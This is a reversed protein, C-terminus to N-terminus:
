RQREVVINKDNHTRVSYGSRLLAELTEAVETQPTLSNAEFEIIRPYADPATKCHALLGRLIACDKGECDLQVVDVTGVHYQKCLEGWSLVPVKREVLLDLRDVAELLTVLEPQPRGLSAMSKAYWMVDVKWAEKSEGEAMAAEVAQPLIAKYEGMHREIMEPLVHHLTGEGSYEDVAAEVVQVRPLRPLARVHEAVAEVALGRCNSLEDLSTRIEAGLWSGWETDGACYETLTGWDSTGVEVFDFHLPREKTDTASWRSSQEQWNDWCPECYHKSTFAGRGEKKANAGGCSDCVHNAVPVWKEWCANRDRLAPRPGKAVM